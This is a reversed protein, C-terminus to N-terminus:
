CYYKIRLDVSSINYCSCMALVFPILNHFHNKTFMIHCLVRITWCTEWNLLKINGVPINNHMFPLNTSSNKSGQFMYTFIIKTGFEVLNSGLVKELSPFSMAKILSGLSASVTLSFLSWNTRGTHKGKFGPLNIKSKKDAKLYRTGRKPCSLSVSYNLVRANKTRPFIFFGGLRGMGEKRNSALRRGVWDGGVTKFFSPQFKAPIIRMRMVWFSSGQKLVKFKFIEAGLCFIMIRNPLNQVM